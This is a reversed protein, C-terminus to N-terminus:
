QKILHQPGNLISTNWQLRLRKLMQEQTCVGLRWCSSSHLVECGVSVGLGASDIHIHTHTNSAIQYYMRRWAEKRHRTKTWVIALQSYNYHHHHHPPPSFFSPPPWTILVNWLGCCDSRPSRKCAIGSTNNWGSILIARSWHSRNGQNSQSVWWYEFHWKREAFTPAFGKALEKPGRRGPKHTQM